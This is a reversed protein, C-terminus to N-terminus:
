YVVVPEEYDAAVDHLRGGTVTLAGPVGTVALVFAELATRMAHRLWVPRASLARQLVLYTAADAEVTFYVKFRARTPKTKM